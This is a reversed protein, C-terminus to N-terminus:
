KLWDAMAYLAATFCAFSLINESDRVVPVSAWHRDGGIDIGASNLNIQRLNRELDQNKPKKCKSTKDKVSCYQRNCKLAVKCIFSIVYIKLLNLTIKGTYLISQM